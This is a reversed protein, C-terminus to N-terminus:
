IHILSLEQTSVYKRATAFMLASFEEYMEIVFDREAQTSLMPLVFSLM